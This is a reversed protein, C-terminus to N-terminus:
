KSRKVICHLDESLVESGGTVEDCEDGVGSGCQDGQQKDQETQFITRESCMVRERIRTEVLISGERPAENLLAGRMM